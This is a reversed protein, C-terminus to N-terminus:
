QLVADHPFLAFITPEFYKTFTYILTLEMYFDSDTKIGTFHYFLFWLLVLFINWSVQNLPREM